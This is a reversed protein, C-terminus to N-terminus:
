STVTSAVSVRPSFAQARAAKRVPLIPVGQFPPHIESPAYRNVSFFTEGTGMTNRLPRERFPSGASAVSKQVAIPM